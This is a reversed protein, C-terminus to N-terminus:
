KKLNKDIFKKMLRQLLNFQTKSINFFPRLVKSKGAGDKDHYKAIEASRKTKFGLKTKFNHAKWSMDRFMKGSHILKSKFGRKPALPSSPKRYKGYSPSVDQFKEVQGLEGDTGKGLSLNARIMSVAERGVMNWLTKDKFSAGIDTRIQRSLEKPTKNTKKAM